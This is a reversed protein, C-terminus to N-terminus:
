KLENPPPFAGWKTHDASFQSYLPSSNWAFSSIRHSWASIFSSDERELHRAKDVLTRSLIMSILSHSNGYKSVDQHQLILRHAHYVDAICYRAISSDHVHIALAQMSPDPICISIKSVTCHWPHYATEILRMKSPLFHMVDEPLTIGLTKREWRGLSTMFFFFIRQEVYSQLVLNARLPKGWTRVWWM